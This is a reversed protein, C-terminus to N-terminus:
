IGSRKDIQFPAHNKAGSWIAVIRLGPSKEPKQLSFRGNGPLRLASGTRPVGKIDQSKEAEGLACLSNRRPAIATHETWRTRTQAQCRILNGAANM